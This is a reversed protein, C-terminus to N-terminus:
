LRCNVEGQFIVVRGKNSFRFRAVADNAVGLSWWQLKNRYRGIGPLIQAYDNSWSEGGDYSLSLDVRPRSLLGYGTNGEQQYTLTEGSQTTLTQSSQTTQILKGLSQQNYDTTGTEITFGIDNIIQYDQSPLRINACIRERPIIAQTIIDNNVVDYTYIQTDLVYINADNKSVFYYQNNFFAVSSAIFYNGQEDTANYFMETNFDYVLTMNDTYFNIHYFLHGDQRFLFAQSDEPKEFTSFLYDIGDTTLKKPMGGNSSLIIPGSQENQALWVVLEDLYAVSAPSVCGYDINFQNNRQYPFFGQSGTYFWSETVINGMVFIMNGKSPFRVVAQTNDPKTQILGVRSPTPNFLLGNNSQSLRWTNNANPSKGTITSTDNSAALIFYNQHFTLYGPTFNLSINQFVTSGNPDYLYFNYNDSFGIQAANNEAIYVVGTQTQLQGIFQVVGVTPTQTAQNYNINVKYINQSVVVILCNLKTSTFLARGTSVNTFYNQALLAIKYGAYPVLATDSIYLNTTKESSIKAYRGYISSGVINLTYNKTNEPRTFSM